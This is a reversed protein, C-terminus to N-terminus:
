WDIARDLTLSMFLHHDCVQFTAVVQDIRDLGMEFVFCGKPERGFENPQAEFTHQRNLIGISYVAEANYGIRFGVLSRAKVLVHVGSRDIRCEVPRMRSEGDIQYGNKEDGQHYQIDDAEGSEAHGDTYSEDSEAEGESFDSFGPEDSESDDRRSYRGRNPLNDQKHVNKFIEQSKLIDAEIDNSGVTVSTGDDNIFQMAVIETALEGPKHHKARRSSVPFFTVDIKSLNPALEIREVRRGVASSDNHYDQLARGYFDSPPDGLGEEAQHTDQIWRLREWVPVTSELRNEIKASAHYLQRWDINESPAHDRVIFNLYARDGDDSFRSKWFYNDSFLATMARSAHRLSFFDQTTLLSAINYQIELSLREFLDSPHPKRLRKTVDRSPLPCNKAGDLIEEWQPSVCPYYEDVRAFCPDSSLSSGPYFTTRFAEARM